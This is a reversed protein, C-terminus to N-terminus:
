IRDNKRGCCKKFKRGSGCPCPDNRGVRAGSGQKSSREGGAVAFAWLAFPLIPSVVADMLLIGTSLATSAAGGFLEIGREEFTVALTVLVSLTVHVVHSGFLAASALAIRGPARRLRALPTALLLTGALVLNWHVTHVRLERLRPRDPSEPLGEIRLHPKGSRWEFV